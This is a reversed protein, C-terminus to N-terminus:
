PTRPRRLAILKEAWDFVEQPVRGSRNEIKGHRLTGIGELPVERPKRRVLRIQVPAGSRGREECEVIYDTTEGRQNTYTEIIDKTPM